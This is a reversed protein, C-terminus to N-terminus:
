YLYTRFSFVTTMICSAPRHIVVNPRARAHRENTQLSGPVRTCRSKKKKKKKKKKKQKKNRMEEQGSEKCKEIKKAEKKLRRERKKQEKEEKMRASDQKWKSLGFLESGIWFDSGVMSDLTSRILIKWNDWSPVRWERQQFQVTKFHTDWNRTEDVPWIQYRFDEAGKVMPHVSYIQLSTHSLVAAWHLIPAEIMQFNTLGIPNFRQPPPPSLVVVTKGRSLSWAFIASAGKIYKTWRSKTKDHNPCSPNKKDMLLGMVTTLTQMKHEDAWKQAEERLIGNWLVQVNPRWSQRFQEIIQKEEEITLYQRLVPMSSSLYCQAHQSFNTMDITTPM